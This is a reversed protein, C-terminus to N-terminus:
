VGSVFDTECNGCDELCEEYVIGDVTVVQCQVVDVIQSELFRIQFPMHAM